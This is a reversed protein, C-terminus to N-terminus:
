GAGHVHQCVDVHDLLVPETGVGVRTVPVVRHDGGGGGASGCDLDRTLAQPLRGALHVGGRGEQLSEMRCPHRDGQRAIGMGGVFRRPAVFLDHRRGLRRPVRRSEPELPPLADLHRESNAPAVVDAAEVMGLTLMWESCGNETGISNRSGTRRKRPLSAEGTVIRVEPCCGGTPIVTDDHTPTSPSSGRAAARTPGPDSKTSAASSVPPNTAWTRSPSSALRASTNAPNRGEGPPINAVTSVSCVRHPGRMVRRALQAPHRVSSSRGRPSWSSRTPIM